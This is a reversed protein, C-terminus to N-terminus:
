LVVGKLTVLTSGDPYPDDKAGRVGRARIEYVYEHSDDPLVGALVLGDLIAKAATPIADHDPIPKENKYRAYPWTVLYSVVVPGDLPKGDWVGSAHLDVAAGKARTKLAETDSSQVSWHSGGKGKRRKNPLLSSPPAVPIVVLFPASM